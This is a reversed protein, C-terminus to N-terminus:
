KGINRLKTIASTHDESELVTEKGLNTMHSEVAEVAVPRQARAKDLKENIASIDPEYIQDPIIARKEQYVRKEKVQWVIRIDQSLRYLFFSIFWLPLCLAAIILVPILYTM